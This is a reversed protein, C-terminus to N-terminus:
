QSTKIASTSSTNWPLGLFCVLSDMFTDVSVGGKTEKVDFSPKYSEGFSHETLFRLYQSSSFPEINDNPIQPVEFKDSGKPVMRITCMRYMSLTIDFADAVVDKKYLMEINSGSNSGSSSISMELEAIFNNMGQAYADVIYTHDAFKKCVRVGWILLLMRSAQANRTLLAKTTAERFTIGQDDLSFPLHISSFNNCVWTMASAFMKDSFVEMAMYRFIQAANPVRGSSTRQVIICYVTEIAEDNTDEYFKWADKVFGPNSAFFNDVCARLVKVRDISTEPKLSLVVGSVIRHDKSKSAEQVIQPGMYVTKVNEPGTADEVRQQMTKSCLRLVPAINCYPVDTKGLEILQKIFTDPLDEM